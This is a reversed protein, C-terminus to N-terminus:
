KKRAPPSEGSVRQYRRYAIRDIWYLTPAFAGAYLITLGLREILPAHKSGLGLVLFMVVGLGGAKIAARRWSPPKVERAARRGQGQKKAPQKATGTKGTAAPKAARGDEEPPGEVEKGDEDVYVVEYEHRREKARRRQQKKTAM